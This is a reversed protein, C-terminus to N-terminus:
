NITNFVYRVVFAFAALGLMVFINSITNFLWNNNPQLQTTQSDVRAGDASSRAANIAASNNLAEQAALEESLKKEISQNIEDVVDPFLECFTKDKM